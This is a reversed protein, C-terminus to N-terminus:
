GVSENYSRYYLKKLFSCMIQFYMYDKSQGTFQKRRDLVSPCNFHGVKHM